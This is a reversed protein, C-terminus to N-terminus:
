KCTITPVGAPAPYFAAAMICMENTQASEGFTLPTSGDNQFTCEYHLHQGAHVVQPPSYFAPAPDSWTMTSYWPTGDINSTFLQGHKHMHAQVKMVNMDQPITCDYSVVQTTMPPVSFNPQVIFMVGAPNTITSPDVTHLTATVHATITQSTTNLYHAQLRFGTTQPIQAAVTAPFTVQDDPLQTSYPTAAFELGSCSELAGNTVGPKYFFLLHHSGKTMHSEFESVDVDKGFPNAFNQCKYVEMGPPVDFSDMAFTYTGNPGPGTGGTGSTAGTTGTAAHMTGTTAGPGSGGSGTPSGKVSSKCAILALASILLLPLPLPRM